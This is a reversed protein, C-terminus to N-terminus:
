KVGKVKKIVPAIKKNRKARARDLQRRKWRYTNVRLAILEYFSDILFDIVKQLISRNKM